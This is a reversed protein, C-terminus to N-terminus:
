VDDEWSDPVDGVDPPTYIPVTMGSPGARSRASGLSATGLGSSGDGVLGPASGQVTSSPTRKAQQAVVSTWGRGSSILSPAPSSTQSRGPGVGPRPTQALPARM